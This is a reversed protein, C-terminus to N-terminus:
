FNMPEDEDAEYREQIVVNLDKFDMTVLNWEHNFTPADGERSALVQKKMEKNLKMDTTQLMGIVVDTDQGYADAFGIDGLEAEVTKTNVARSFQTTAWIPIGLTSALQKVSRSVNTTRSWIDKGKMDDATMYLGDIYIIGPAYQQYKQAIASVGMGAGSIIHFKRESKELKKLGELFRKEDVDSLCGSKLHNYDLKFHVAYFRYRLAEASMENSVFLIDKDNVTFDHNANIILDWSKGVKPRAVTLWFEGAHKGRTADNLTKWPTSYGDIGVIKKREEYNKRQVDANSTIDVDRTATGELQLKVLETQLKGIVEMPKKHLHPVEKVLIEQVKAVSYVELLKDIYFPITQKAYALRYDPFQDEVLEVTPLEMYKRYHEKVWAFVEQAKPDTFMHPEVKREMIAVFDQKQIVRSILERQIDM